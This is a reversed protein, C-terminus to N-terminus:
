SNKGHSWHSLLIQLYHQKGLLHLPFDLGSIFYCWGVVIQAFFFFFLFATKLKASRNYHDWRKDCYRYKSFSQPRITSVKVNKQTVAFEVLSHENKKKIGKCIKSIQIYSTFKKICFTPAVKCSTLIFKTFWNFLTNLYFLLHMKLSRLAHLSTAKFKSM